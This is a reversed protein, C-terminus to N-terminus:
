LDKIIEDVNYEKKERERFYRRTMDKLILSLPSLHNLTPLPLTEGEM